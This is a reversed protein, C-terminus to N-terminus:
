DDLLDRRTCADGSSQGSRDQAVEVGGDAEDGACYFMGAEVGSVSYGFDGVSDSYDFGYALM